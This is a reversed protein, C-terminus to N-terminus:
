DFQVDYEVFANTYTTMTPITYDKIQKTQGNVRIELHFGIPHSTMNGIVASIRAKFTNASVKMERIGDPFSAMDYVTEPIGYEDNFTISRIDSTQTSIVYALEFHQPFTTRVSTSDHISGSTSTDNSKSCANLILISLSTLFIKSIISKKM